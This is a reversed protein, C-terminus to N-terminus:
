SKKFLSTPIPVSVIDPSSQVRFRNYKIINLQLLLQTSNFIPQVLQSILHTLPLAHNTLQGSKLLDILIGHISLVPSAEVSKKQDRVILTKLMKGRFFQKQLCRVQSTSTASFLFGGLTPIEIM